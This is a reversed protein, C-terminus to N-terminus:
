PYGRAEGVGCGQGRRFDPTWRQNTVPLIVLRLELRWSVGMHYAFAAGGNQM